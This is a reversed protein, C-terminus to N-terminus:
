PTVPACRAKIYNELKLRDEQNISKFEVAFGYTPQDHEDRTYIRIIDVIANITEKQGPLQMQLPQNHFHIIQPIPNGNPVEFRAGSMSLDRLISKDTHFEKGISLTTCRNVTIRYDHRENEKRNFFIKLGIM